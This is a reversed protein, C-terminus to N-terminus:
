PNKYACTTDRSLVFKQSAFPGLCAGCTLPPSNYCGWTNAVTVVKQYHWTVMSLLAQDDNVDYRMEFELEFQFEFALSFYFNNLNSVLINM